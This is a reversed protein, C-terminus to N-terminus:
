AGPWPPRARRRAPRGDVHRQEDRVRRGAWATPRGRRARGPRRQEGRLEGVLGQRRQPRDRHVSVVNDVDYGAPYYATADNDVARGLWDGNGAAAVFLIGDAVNGDKNPDTSAAVADRFAQSYPEGGYSNNTAVVDVGRRRM